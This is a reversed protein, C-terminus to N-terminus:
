RRRKKAEKKKIEVCNKSLTKESVVIRFPIGILDTDFFKEGISKEKRDDYLVEIDARRLM